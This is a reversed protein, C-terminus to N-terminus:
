MTVFPLLLLSMLIQSIPLIVIVMAIIEGIVTRQGSCTDPPLAATCQAGTPNICADNVDDCGMTCSCKREAPAFVVEVGETLPYTNPYEDEGSKPPQLLLERAKCEIVNDHPDAYSTFGAGPLTLYGVNFEFTTGVGWGTEQEVEM